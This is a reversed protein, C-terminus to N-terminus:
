LIVDVYTYVKIVMTDFTIIMIPKVCDKQSSRLNVEYDYPANISKKSPPALARVSITVDCDFM